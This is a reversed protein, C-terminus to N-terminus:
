SWFVFFSCKSIPMSKATNLQCANVIPATGIECTFAPCAYHVRKLSRKRIDVPHAACEREYAEFLRDAATQARLRKPFTWVQSFRLEKLFSTCVLRTAWHFTIQSCCDARRYAAGDWADKQSETAAKAPKQIEQSPIQEESKAAHDSM